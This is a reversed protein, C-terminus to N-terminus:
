KEEPKTCDARLEFAAPVEVVRGDFGAAGLVDSLTQGTFGTRHQYLPHGAAVLRQYGYVVDLPRVPGAPSEYLVDTLRGQAVQRCVLKLDPVRVVLRGGPRLVRRLEALAPPVEHEALHELTHSTYVADVTQDDLPISRIDAVIDPKSDPDADLRIERWWGSPFEDAPVHGAGSGANLVTELSM